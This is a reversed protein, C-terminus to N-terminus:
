SREAAGPCDLAEASDTGDLGPQGALRLLFGALCLGLALTVPGHALAAAVRLLTENARVRWVRSWRRVRPPVIGARIGIGTSL